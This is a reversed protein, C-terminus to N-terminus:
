IKRTVTVPQRLLVERLIVARPDSPRSWGQWYYSIINLDFAPLAFHQIANNADAIHPQGETSEVEYIISTEYGRIHMRYQEAEELTPLCFLCALRSPRDPFLQQRVEEYVMEHRYLPHAAGQLKISRGFNGPAIISSPALLIPALHFYSPM